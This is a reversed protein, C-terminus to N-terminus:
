LLRLAPGIGVRVGAGGGACRNGGTRKQSANPIASGVGRGDPGAPCRVAELEMRGDCFCLIAFRLASRLRERPHPAPRPWGVPVGGFVWGGQARLALTRCSCLLLMEARNEM